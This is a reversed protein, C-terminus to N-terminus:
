ASRELRPAHMLRLAAFLATLGLAGFAGLAALAQVPDVGDFLRGALEVAGLEYAARGLVIIGRILLTRLGELVYSALGIATVGHRGLLWWGAAGAAALAGTLVIALLGLRERVTAWAHVYWPVTLRVRAMVRTAFAPAPEFRPLGALAANVARLGALERRCEPCAELHASATPPVPTEAELLGDLEDPTLHADMNPDRAKM